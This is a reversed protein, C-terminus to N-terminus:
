IKSIDELLLREEYEKHSTINELAELKYGLKEELYAIKYLKMQKRLEVSYHVHKELEFYLVPSGVYNLVMRHNITGKPPNM